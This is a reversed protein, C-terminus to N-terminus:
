MMDAQSDNQILIASNKRFSPTADISTPEKSLRPNGDLLVYYGGRLKSELRLYYKPPPFRNDAGQYKGSRPVFTAAKRFWDLECSGSPPPKRLTLENGSVALYYDNFDSAVPVIAIGDKSSRLAFQRLRPSARWRQEDVLVIRGTKPDFAAAMGTFPNFLGITFPEALKIIEDDGSQMEEAATPTEVPISKRETRAGRKAELVLDSDGCVTLTTTGTSEVTRDFPQLVISDANRVDWHLIVPEGVIPKSPNATFKDVALKPSADVFPASASKLKDEPPQTEAPMSAPGPQGVASARADDPQRAPSGPAARVLATVLAACGVFMLVFIYLRAKESSQKPPFLRLGLLSVAIIALAVIGLPSAAAARIISPFDVRGFGM